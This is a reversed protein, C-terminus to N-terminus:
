SAGTGLCCNILIIMILVLCNPVFDECAGWGEKGITEVTIMIFNAEEFFGHKKVGQTEAWYKKQKPLGWENM